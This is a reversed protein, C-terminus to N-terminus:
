HSSLVESVSPSSVQTKVVSSRPSNFSFRIVHHLGTFTVGLSACEAGTRTSAFLRQLRKIFWTCVQNTAKGSRPSAWDSTEDVLKISETAFRNRSLHDWLGGPFLDVPFCGSMLNLISSGKCSRLIQFVRACSSVSVPLWAREPHISLLCFLSRCRWESLSISVKLFVSYSESLDLVSLVNSRIQVRVSVLSACFEM